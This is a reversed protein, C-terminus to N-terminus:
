GQGFWMSFLSKAPRKRQVFRAYISSKAIRTNRTLLDIMADRSGGRLKFLLPVDKDKFPSVLAEAYLRDDFGVQNLLRYPIKEAEEACPVPIGDVFLVKQSAMHIKLYGPMFNNQLILQYTEPGYIRQLYELYTDAMAFNTFVKNFENFWASVWKGYPVTAIFWSEFVPVEKNLTFSTLYFGFAESRNGQQQEHIVNLSGTVIISADMWIGGQEMLVALRVWDSKFRVDMGVFNPPLPTVIHTTVTLATLVVVTHDPNHRKWGEICDEVFPPMFGQDWYTWIIKPIQLSKRQFTSPNSPPQSPTSPTLDLPPQQFAPQQQQQIQQDESEKRGNGFINFPYSSWSSSSPSDPDLLTMKMKENANSNANAVSVDEADNMETVSESDLIAPRRNNSSTPPMPLPKAVNRDNSQFQDKIRPPRSSFSDGQLGTRGSSKGQPRASYLSNGVAAAGSADPRLVPRRLVEEMGQWGGNGFRREEDVVEEGIYGGSGRGDEGFTDKLQEMLGDAEFIPPRGVKRGVEEVEEGVNGGGDSGMVDKIQRLFTQDREADEMAKELTNTETQFRRSNTFLIFLAALATSLTLILLITRIRRSRLLRLPPFKRRITSM